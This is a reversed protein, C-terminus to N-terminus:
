DGAVFSTMRWGAPTDVFRARYGRGANRPCEISRDPLPSCVSATVRALKDLLSPNARWAAIAQRADGDGGFSWVFETVMLAELASYDKQAAATHVKGITTHAEGPLATQQSRAAVPKLAYKGPEAFVTLRFRHITQDHGSEAAIDFAIGKTTKQCVPKKFILELHDDANFEPISLTRIVRYPNANQPTEKIWQLYLLSNGYHFDFYIVRFHGEDGAHKWHGCRYVEAIEAPIAAITDTQDIPASIAPLPILSLM